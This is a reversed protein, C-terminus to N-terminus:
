AAVARSTRVDALPKGFGREQVFSDGTFVDLNRKEIAIAPKREAQL